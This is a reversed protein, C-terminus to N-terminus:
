SAVRLARGPYTAAARSLAAQASEARTVVAALRHAADRLQRSAPEGDEIACQVEILSDETQQLENNVLQLCDQVEHVCDIVSPSVSPSPRPKKAM